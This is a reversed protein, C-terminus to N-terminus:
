DIATNFKKNIESKLLERVKVPDAQGKTNKMVQGVLFEIASLKGGKIDNIINRNNKVVEELYNKLNKENIIRNTSVNLLKEFEEFSMDRSEKKNILINATKVPDLGSEVFGEFKKLLGFSYGTSLITAINATLGYRTMLRTKKQQPLEPLSNKLEEIHKEDFYLLPIDPEPFYRYDHAEEKVRQSVTTGSREDWGRNEQNVVNGKQLIETQRKIEAIIAKEMFRFSNINKIEVKYDPLIDNYEMEQTRLSINAELRMQGKEMDADGIGLTIILDQIKKCFEVSEGVTKFVPKTVIEVLPMGSKNFDILTRGNEHFSKATDEELHIRELSVKNGSDLEIEGGECLPQKYQSIQFGKPLDPYFYHKRDFRSEKNLISDLALGLVQTKKIAEFNPVPLAGPLGLCVPCVHTNPEAEYINSDCGCFMKTETKLHIHVELGLVLKYETM